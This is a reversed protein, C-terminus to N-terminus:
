FAELLINRGAMPLGSLSQCRLPRISYTLYQLVIQWDTAFRRFGSFMAYVSAVRLIMIIM